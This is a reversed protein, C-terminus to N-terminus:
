GAQAVAFLVLGVKHEGLILALREIQAETVDLVQCDPCFLVRVAEIPNFWIGPDQSPVAVAIIDGPALCVSAMDQAFNVTFGEGSLGPAYVTEILEQARRYVGVFAGGSHSLGLDGTEGNFNIAAQSGLGSLARFTIMSAAELPGDPGTMEFVNSNFAQGAQLGFGGTGERPLRICALRTCLRFAQIM